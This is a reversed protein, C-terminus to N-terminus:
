TRNYMDTMGTIIGVLYRSGVGQNKLHTEKVLLAPFDVHYDCCGHYGALRRGLEDCLLHHILHLRTLPATLRYHFLAGNTMKKAQYLSLKQTHILM